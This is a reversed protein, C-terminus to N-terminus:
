LYTSDFAAGAPLVLLSLFLRTPRDDRGHFFSRGFEGGALAIPIALPAAMLLCILGEFAFCLIGVTVTALTMGVVGATQSSTARTGKALLSGTVAGMVFPTALFVALGYTRLVPVALAICAFAAVAGGAVAQVVRPAHLSTRTPSTSPQTTM